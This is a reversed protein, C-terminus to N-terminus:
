LMMAFKSKNKLTAVATVLENRKVKKQWTFFQSLLQRKKSLDFNKEQAGTSRCFLFYNHWM